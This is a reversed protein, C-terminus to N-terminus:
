YILVFIFCYQDSYKEYESGVTIKNKREFNNNKSHVTDIFHIKM